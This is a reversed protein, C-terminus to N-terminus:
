EGSRALAALYRPDDPATDAWRWANAACERQHPTGDALAALLRDQLARRGIATLLVAALWRPSSPDDDCLLAALVADAHDRALARDAALARYATQRKHGIRHYQPYLPETAALREVRPDDDTHCTLGLAALLEDLRAEQLDLGDARNM